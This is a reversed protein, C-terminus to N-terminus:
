AEKTILLENTQASPNDRHIARRALVTYLTYPPNPFAQKVLPVDANSMVFGIRNTPLEKTLRFLTEHAEKSFGDGQYALFSTAQEPAYPPDLYVFDGPTAKAISQEFGQCTFVVRQTLQSIALLNAEEFLVPTKKYHGFPVNLKGQKNERYVGKFGTKNLFIFMAAADISTNDTISNFQSRIWYYYSEQSTKAEEMSSPTKTGTLVQIGGFETQFDRLRQILATPNTQIHKYLSILRQNADSAYITGSLRRRGEQIDTLLGLLVSGGGLFPEHYNTLDTPFLALVNELMQTKGGVWKLFPKAMTAVWCVSLFKLNLDIISHWLRSGTIIIGIGISGSHGELLLPFL